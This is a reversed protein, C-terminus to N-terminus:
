LMVPKQKAKRRIQSAAFVCRIRPSSTAASLSAISQTISAHHQCHPVVIAERHSTAGLIRIYRRSLKGLKNMSSCSMEIAFAIGASLGLEVIVLM